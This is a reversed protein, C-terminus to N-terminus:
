CPLFPGMIRPPEGNEVTYTVVYEAFGPANQAVFKVCEPVPDATTAAGSTAPAALAAAAVVTTLAALRLM